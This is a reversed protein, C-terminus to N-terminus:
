NYNQILIDATKKYKTLDHVQIIENQSLSVAHQM